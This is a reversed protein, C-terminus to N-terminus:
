SCLRDAATGKEEFPGLQESESNRAGDIEVSPSGPGTKRRWTRGRLDCDNRAARAGVM